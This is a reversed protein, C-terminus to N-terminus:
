KKVRMKIPNPSCVSFFVQTWDVVHGLFPLLHNPHSCTIEEIRYVNERCWKQSYLSSLIQLKQVGGGKSQEVSLWRQLTTNSLQSGATYGQAWQSPGEPVSSRIRISPIHTLVRRDCEQWFGDRSYCGKSLMISFLRFSRNGLLNQNKEGPGQRHALYLFICFCTEDPILFNDTM